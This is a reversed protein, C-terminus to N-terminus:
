KVPGSVRIFHGTSLRVHSPSCAAAFPVHIVNVPVAKALSSPFIQTTGSETPIEFYPRLALSIIANAARVLFM